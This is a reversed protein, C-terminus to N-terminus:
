GKKKTPRTSPHFQNTCDALSTLQNTLGNAITTTTTTLLLGIHILCPKLSFVLFFTPTPNNKIVNSTTNTNADATSPLRPSTTPKTNLDNWKSLQLVNCTVVVVPLQQKIQQKLCPLHQTWISRDISRVILQKM